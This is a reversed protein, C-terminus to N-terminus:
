ESKRQNFLVKHLEVLQRELGGLSRVVHDVTDHSLIVNSQSGQELRGLGDPLVTPVTM